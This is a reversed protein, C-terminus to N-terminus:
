SVQKRRRWAVVGWGAVALALLAYTSPEPIVEVVLNPSDARFYAYKGGGIDYTNGVGLNAVNSFNIATGDILPYAGNTVTSDLGVLDDIGFDAFTVSAGNVM